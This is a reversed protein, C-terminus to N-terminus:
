YGSLVPKVTGYSVTLLFFQSMGADSEKRLLLDQRSFPHLKRSDNCLEITERQLTYGNHRQALKTKVSELSCVVFTSILSYLHGLQDADRNNASPIHAQM